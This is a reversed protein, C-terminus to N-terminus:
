NMFRLEPGSHVRTAYPRLALADGINVCQRTKTRLRRPRFNDVKTHGLARACTALVFLSAAPPWCWRGGVLNTDIAVARLRWVLTSKPAVKHIIMMMM